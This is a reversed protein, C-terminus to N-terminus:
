NEENFGRKISQQYLDIQKEIDEKKQTLLKIRFACKNELYTEAESKSIFLNLILTGGEKSDTCLVLSNYKNDNDTYIRSCDCGLIPVHLKLQYCNVTQTEDEQNQKPISYQCINNSLVTGCGLFYQSLKPKQSVCQSYVLYIIDGGKLEKFSM